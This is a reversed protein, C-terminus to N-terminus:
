AVGGSDVIQVTLLARWDTGVRGTIVIRANGRLSHQNDRIGNPLPATRGLNGRRSKLRSSAIIEDGAVEYEGGDIYILVFNGKDTEDLSKLVKDQYIARGICGIDKERIPM